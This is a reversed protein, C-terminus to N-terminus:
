KDVAGVMAVGAGFKDVDKVGDVPKKLRLGDAKTYVGAMAGYM